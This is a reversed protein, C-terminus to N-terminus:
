SKNRSENFEKVLKVLDQTDNTRLIPFCMKNSLMIIVFEKTEYIRNIDSLEFNYINGNTAYLTIKSDIQEYRYEISNDKAKSNFNDDANKKCIIWKFLLILAILVTVGLTKYLYDLAEIDMVLGIILFYIDLALCICLMIIFLIFFNSKIFMYRIMKDNQKKNLIFKIM